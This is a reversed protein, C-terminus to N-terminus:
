SVEGVYQLRSSRRTLSQRGAPLYRVAAIVLAALLGAVVGFGIQLWKELRVIRAQLDSLARLVDAKNALLTLEAQIATVVSRIGTMEARMLGVEPRAAELIVSAVQEAKDRDQPVAIGEIEHM